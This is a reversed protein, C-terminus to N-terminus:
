GVSNLDGPRLLVTQILRLDKRRRHFLCFTVIVERVTNRSNKRRLIEWVAFLGVMFSEANWFSLIFMGVGPYQTDNDGVRSSNGGDFFSVKKRAQMHGSHM